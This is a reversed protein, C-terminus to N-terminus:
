EYLITLYTLYSDLSNDDYYCVLPFWIGSGAACADYHSEWNIDSDGM